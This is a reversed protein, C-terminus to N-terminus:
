QRDDDRLLRAVRWSFQQNVRETTAVELSAVTEGSRLNNRRISFFKELENNRCLRVYMNLDACNFLESLKKTEISDRPVDCRRAVRRIFSRQVRELAEVHKAM